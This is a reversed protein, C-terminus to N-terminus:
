SKGGVSFTVLSSHGQEVRESNVFIEIDASLYMVAKSEQSM